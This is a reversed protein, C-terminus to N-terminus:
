IMCHKVYDIGNLRAEEVASVSTLNEGSQKEFLGAASLLVEPNVTTRGLKVVYKSLLVAFVSKRVKEDRVVAMPGGRVDREAPLVAGPRLFYTVFFIARDDWALVRSAVAYRQYPRIERLFRSQVAALIMNAAVPRPGNRRIPSSSSPSAASHTAVDVLARSFLRTLLTARSIDADTFFTSNSKHINADLDLAVARSSTVHLRFLLLLEASTLL